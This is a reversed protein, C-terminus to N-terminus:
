QKRLMKVNVVKTWVRALYTKVSSPVLAKLPETVEELAGLQFHCFRCKVEPRTAELAQAKLWSAISDEWTFKRLIHIM